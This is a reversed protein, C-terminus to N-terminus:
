GETREKLGGQTWDLALGSFVGLLQRSLERCILLRRALSPALHGSRGFDPSLLCNCQSAISALRRM